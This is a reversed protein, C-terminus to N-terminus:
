VRITMMAVREMEGINGHGGLAWKEAVIRTDLVDRVLGSAGWYEMLAGGHERSVGGLRLVFSNKLANYVREDYGREYPDPLPVERGAQGAELQALVLQQSPHHRTNNESTAAIVAGGNPLPTKGSLADVFIRVIALDHAHVPKFSPDRYSSLRNIHALGDLGFLVPPRGPQILETWLALLTPWAQDGERASLALDAVTTGEKLNKTRSWDKHLRLTELVPRNAKYIAQILRLCYAPQAFQLPETRGIPSYETNGNTLEQAEPIFVVTWHNLFAHSMAQLLALSKGSLRSGTLVCRLTEKNERAAELRAVLEATEDRVLFHPRRFFSWTQTTKFADLARLQDVIHDPIAFVRGRSGGSAMTAPGLEGLGQVPLANSNSLQIRKRFAKREGPAPRREPETSVRKKNFTKKVKLQLDRRSRPASADAARATSSSFPASRSALAVPQIRPAVLISPRMLCRLSRGSAM